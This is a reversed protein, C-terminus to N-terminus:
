CHSYEWHLEDIISTLRSGIHGSHKTERCDMDVARRCNKDSMPKLYSVSSLPYHELNEMKSKRTINLHTFIHISHCNTKDVQRNM